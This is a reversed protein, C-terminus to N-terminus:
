KDTTAQRVLFLLTLLLIFLREVNAPLFKLIQRALGRKSGQYPIPQPLKKMIQKVKTEPLFSDFFLNTVGIPPSARPYTTPSRIRKAFNPTL